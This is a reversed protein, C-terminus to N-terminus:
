SHRPAQTEGVIGVLEHVRFDEGGTIARATGRACGPAWGRAPRGRVESIPVTRGSRGGRGGSEATWRRLSWRCGGVRRARTELNTTSYFGEPFVGNAPAATLEADVQEVAQAGHRQLRSLIFELQETDAAQVRIVARSHDFKERGVRFHLFRFDGGLDLIDDLVRPLVMSDIIHGELKIDEYEVASGSSAPRRRM